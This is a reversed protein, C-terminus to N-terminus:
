LKSLHTETSIEVPMTVNTILFILHETAHITSLVSIFIELILLPPYM